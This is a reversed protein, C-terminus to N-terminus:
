ALSRQLIREKKKLSGAHYSSTTPTNQDALSNGSSHSDSLENDAEAALSQSQSHSSSAEDSSPGRTQPGWFEELSM